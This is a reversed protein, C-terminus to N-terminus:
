YQLSDCTINAVSLLNLRLSRKRIRVNSTNMNVEITNVKRNNGFILDEFKISLFFISVMVRAM